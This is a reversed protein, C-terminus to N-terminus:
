PTMLMSLQIEFERNLEVLATKTADIAEFFDRDKGKVGLRSATRLNESAVNLILEMQGYTDSYSKDSLQKCQDRFCTLYHKFANTGSFNVTDPPAGSFLVKAYESHMTSSPAFFELRKKNYAMTLASPQYESLTQPCYYWVKRRSVNAADPEEFKDTSFMRVNLWTGSAIADAGVCAFPLFQHTSYGVVLKKRQLKIAAGIHLLNSMWVPDDVLYENFPHQVVLYIGPVDWTFIENMLTSIQETSRVVEASLCITALGNSSYEKGITVIKEHYALWRSTVKDCFLGPFIMEETQGVENIQAIKGLTDRCKSSSFFETTNFRQPWYDFKALGHHSSHLSFLQPDFLIKGGCRPIEKSMKKIQDISMDRPSLIVTGEGWKGILDMSLALMGYGFQLYFKM